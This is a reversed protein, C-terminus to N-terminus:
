TASLWDKLIQQSSMPNFEIIRHKAVGALAYPDQDCYERMAEISEARGILIGGVRPVQPGSLLLIGRAYGTQLYERHDPTVPSVQELPKLYIIEVVFHKM